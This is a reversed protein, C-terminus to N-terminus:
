KYPYQPYIRGNARLEIDRVNFHMFKFPSKYQSGIFRKSNTMAVIIRRPVENMFLNTQFERRGASIFHSVLETRRVGYRAPEVDLRKAVDLSLGDMLDLTKIMLRVDTIKFVYKDVDPADDTAKPAQIIMFDSQQPTLEIDVEVNSILYLDQNLIDASLRSILQVKRSRAFMNKRAVFGADSVSEPDKVDRQYGTVSLFGDKVANSFSLETDFWCKHSYLQNSDYVERQNILIKLNRIWTSGPMQIPAVVENAPLDVEVGDDGIKRIQCETILFIKSVDV